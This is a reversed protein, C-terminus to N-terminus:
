GSLEVVLHRSRKMIEKHLNKTMFPAENARIYKKKIPAYKSFVSLITEKFSNIDKTDFGCTKIGAQFRDNNFNKYNRYTIVQPKLKQFGMTTKQDDEGPCNM